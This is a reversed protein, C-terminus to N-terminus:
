PQTFTHAAPQQCIAALHCRAVAENGPRSSSGVAAVEYRPRKGGTGAGAQDLMFVRCAKTKLIFANGGAGPQFGGCSGDSGSIKIRGAFAQIDHCNGAGIALRGRGPKQRLRQLLQPTSATHHPREANPLRAGHHRVAQRRRVGYQQLLLEPTKDIFTEGGARQLSRRNSDDLPPKIRQRDVGRDKGVERLIM